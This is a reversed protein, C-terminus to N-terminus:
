GKSLSLVPKEMTEKVWAVEVPEPCAQRLVVRAEAFRDALAAECAGDLLAEITRKVSM